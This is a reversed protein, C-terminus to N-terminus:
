KAIYVVAYLYVTGTRPFDPCIKSPITLTVTDGDLSPERSAVINADEVSILRVKFHPVRDEKKPLVSELIFIVCIYIVEVSVIFCKCSGRAFGITLLTKCPDTKLVLSM